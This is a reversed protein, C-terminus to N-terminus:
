PAQIVARESRWSYCQLEGLAQNSVRLTDAEDWIGSCRVREWVQCFGDAVVVFLVCSMWFDSDDGSEDRVM